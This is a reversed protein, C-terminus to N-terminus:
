FWVTHSFSFGMGKQAEKRVHLIISVRLNNQSNLLLAYFASLTHEHLLPEAERVGFEWEGKILKIETPVISELSPKNIWEISM